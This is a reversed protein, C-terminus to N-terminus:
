LGRSSSGPIRDVPMLKGNEWMMRAFGKTPVDGNEDFTTKGTAGMYGRTAALSKRIAGPSTGGMQMARVLLRLVDYGSAEYIGPESHYRARYKAAFATFEPGSYVAPTTFLVGNGANGASAAFDKKTWPDAGFFQNTVGLERAQRLLLGGERAYVIAVYAQPKAARMRVLQTRFDVEGQDTAETAVIEGGMAKYQDVFGDKLGTGWTQNVYVLAIHKYGKTLVWKALDAAQAGDSPVSRFIYSGAQSIKAASSVPSFLVRGEREAIPAMALTETSTGGGIVAPVKRVDLLARIASVARAGEGKTDEYVIQIKQGNVGGNANIEDLALDIGRRSDQGYYSVQGSMPLAAGIVIAGSDNNMTRLTILILAITGLTALMVLAIRNHWIKQTM